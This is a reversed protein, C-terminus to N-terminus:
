SLNKFYMRRRRFFKTPYDNFLALSAANEELIANFRVQEIQYKNFVDIMEGFIIANLGKNRWEELVGILSLENIRAARQARLIHYWGWPLLNGGARQFAESLSPLAVGFGIMKDERDTIIIAYRLQLYSLYLDIYKQMQKDSLPVFVPLTKYSELFLQFFEGIRAKFEKKSRFTRYRIGYKQELIPRLRKLKEPIQPVAELKYELWDLMKTYGARELHAPYYPMSYAFRLAGVGEFGDVVMGAPDMNSFGLPGKVLEAGRERAWGEAAELLLRLIEPDDEFELWNFRAHVKGIHATENHNILAGLRGAVRNNRWVLWLRSDSIEFAPNRSPDLNEYEMRRLPPVWYPNGKYLRYPFEVFERLDKADQVPEIRLM